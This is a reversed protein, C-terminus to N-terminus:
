RHAKQNIQGLPVVYPSGNILRIDASIGYIEGLNKETMVTKPTGSAVIKGQKMMVIKDSYRAAINLDHIAILVTLDRKKVLTQLIDMVGIQHYIDLSSTPEDLLIVGSDQALARAILVKQQQGGSLENFPRLAMDEIGLLNLVDWVNEENASGSSWGLYPRRGMLVVEFVTNPFVR